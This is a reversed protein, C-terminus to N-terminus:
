MEKKVRKLTHLIDEPVLSVPIYPHLSEMKLEADGDKILQAPTAKSDTQLTKM